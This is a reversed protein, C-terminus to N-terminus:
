LKASPQNVLAGEKLLIIIINGMFINGALYSEKISGIRLKEEFHEEASRSSSFYIFDDVIIGLYLPPENPLHISM